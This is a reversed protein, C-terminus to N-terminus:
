KKAKPEKLVADGDEDVDNVDDDAAEDRSAAATDAREDMFQDFESKDKAQRLRDLFAEFQEQEDMLRKLTDAKYADFASNGSSRFGHRRGMHMAEREEMPRMRRARCSGAFKGNVGGYVAFALGVPWFVVFGLVTSAIWAGRGRADLWSEARTLWGTQPVAHPDAYTSM